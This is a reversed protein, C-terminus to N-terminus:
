EYSKRLKDTYSGDRDYVALPKLIKLERGAGKIMHVLLINPIRGEKPSVLCMEKPELGCARGAVCLDVLRSPRHVMFLSGKPKLLESACRVFDDLDATTEHRAIAKASNSNTLGGKGATYPPNSTVIDVYGRLFSGEKKWFEKVDSHFFEVRDQLGNMTSTRVARDFSNKQVEVGYIKKCNTKHSLILPVIGTGSGLDVIAADKMSDRRSVVPKGDFNVDFFGKQRAAFDALLVADVGYCFEEPEQILKLTGFGIEDIREAM